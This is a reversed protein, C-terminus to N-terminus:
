QLDFHCFRQEIPNLQAPSQDPYLQRILDWATHLEYSAERAAPHGLMRALDTARGDIRATTFDGYFVIQREAARVIRDHAPKLREPTDLRRLRAIVDEARGRYIDFVARYTDAKSDGAKLVGEVNRRNTAGDEFVAILQGFYRQEDAPIPRPGTPRPTIPNSALLVSAGLAAVSLALVGCLVAIRRRARVSAAHGDVVGRLAELAGLGMWAGHGVPCTSAVLGPQGLGCRVLERRCVACATSVSSERGGSALIEALLRDIDTARGEGLASGLREFQGKEIWTAQSNMGVM